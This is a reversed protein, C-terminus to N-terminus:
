GYAVETETESGRERAAAATDDVRAFFGTLFDSLADRADVHVSHGAALVVVDADPRVREIRGSIARAPTREGLVVALAPPLMCLDDDTVEPETRLSRMISETDPVRRGEAADASEDSATGWWWPDADDARVPPEVLVLSAVREPHSVAFRLAVLAGFSHGVLHFPLLEDSLEGLDDAQATSSHDEDEPPDTRGHGRLDYLLVNRDKAVAPACTFFWSALSGTFLGHVMVAPAASSAAVGGGLRQVHTRRGGVIVIPM